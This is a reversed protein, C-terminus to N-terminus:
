EFNDLNNMMFCNMKVLKFQFNNIRSITKPFLNKTLSSNNLIVKSYCSTWKDLQKLPQTRFLLKAEHFIIIWIFRVEDGVRVLSFACPNEPSLLLSPTQSMTVMELPQVIWICCIFQWNKRNGLMPLRFHISTNILLLQSVFQDQINWNVAVKIFIEGLLAELLASLVMWSHRDDGIYTNTSDLLSEHDIAWYLVYRM